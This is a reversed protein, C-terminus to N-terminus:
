AHVGDSNVGPANELGNRIRELMKLFRPASYSGLANRVKQEHGRAYPMLLELHEDGKETLTLIYNRRDAEMRSRSILGRAELNRLSTTLTSKDRGNAKSLATQNIGPNRHILYLLAFSGLKMDEDEAPRTLTQFSAEQARRLRFSVSEELWGFDVSSEPNAAIHSTSKRL